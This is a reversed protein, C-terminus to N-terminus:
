EQPASAPRWHALPRWELGLGAFGAVMDSGKALMLTGMLTLYPTIRLGLRLGFPVAPGSDDSVRFYGLGLCIDAAWRDSQLGIDGMAYLGGGADGHAFSFLGEARAGISVHFPWVHHYGTSVLLSGGTVPGTCGPTALCTSGSDVGGYGGAAAVVLDHGLAHAPAICGMCGILLLTLRRTLM